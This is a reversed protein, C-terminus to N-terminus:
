GTPEDITMDPVICEEDKEWSIKCADEAQIRQMRKVQSYGFVGALAIVTGAANQANVPTSFFVVAAVIVIVRKVCNGISHTVPSVRALIMYSVQQYTHFCLAALFAHKLVADTDTVGAAALAAPALPWGEFGISFPALILFSAITILSFMSVNDVGEGEKKLMLKKSLVNRSQFTLNSGMAALFGVWNFSAEAMSALAVGGVIPVLTLLVMASPADGLFLSSLMVSFFPEM